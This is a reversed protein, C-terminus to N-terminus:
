AFGDLFLTVDDFHLVSQSHRHEGEKAAKTDLSRLKCPEHLDQFVPFTM